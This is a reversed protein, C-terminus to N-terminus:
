RKKGKAARRKKVKGDKPVPKSKKKAAHAKSSKKPSKKVSSKSVKSAKSTKVPKMKVPKEKATKETEIAAAKKPAKPMKPVRVKVVMIKGTTHALLWSAIASLVKARERPSENMVEHFLDPYVILSKDESLAREHLIESGRVSIIKDASGHVVFLPIRIDAARGLCYEGNRVLESYLRPTIRDHVLPDETYMKVQQEDHSLLSPDIKNATSAKPAIASLVPSAARTIFSPKKELILSPASLALGKLDNQYTLAYRCAVSGGLSHGLMVIPLDSHAERVMNMFIKLDFIYDLFTDIHGREGQSKGHGRLDLAFFSIKKGSLADIIHNYRGSHEGLGHVIVVVGKPKEAAWGKYAIQVNGKGNFTGETYSYKAMIMVEYLRFIPFHGAIGSFSPQLNHLFDFIKRERPSFFCLM